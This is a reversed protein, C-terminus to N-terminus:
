FHVEEKQLIDEKAQIYVKKIGEIVGVFIALPITIPIFLIWQFLRYFNIYRKRKM